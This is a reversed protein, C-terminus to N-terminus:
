SASVEVLGDRLQDTDSSVEVPGLDVELSTGGRVHRVSMLRGQM